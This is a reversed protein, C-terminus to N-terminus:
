SREAELRALEEDLISEGEIRARERLRRFGRELSKSVTNRDLGLAEGIVKPPLDEVGQEVADFLYTMVRQVNLQGLLPLLRRAVRLAVIRLEEPEPYNDEATEQAAGTSDSHASGDTPVKNARARQACLDQAKRQAVKWLWGGVSHIRKGQRVNQYLAQVADAVVDEADEFSILDWRVAIQRILGDVFGSAFLAGLAAQLDGAAIARQVEELVGQAPEDSLPVASADGEDTGTM